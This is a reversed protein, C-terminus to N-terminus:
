IAIHIKGFDYKSNQLSGLLCTVSEYRVRGKGIRRDNRSVCTYIRSHNCNIYGLGEVGYTCANYVTM